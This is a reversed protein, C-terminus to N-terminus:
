LKTFSEMGSYTSAPIGVKVVYANDNLIVVDTLTTRGGVVGDLVVSNAYNV